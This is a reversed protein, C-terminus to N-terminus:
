ILCVSGVLNSFKYQRKILFDACSILALNRFGKDQLSEHYTFMIEDQGNQKWKIGAKINTDANLLNLAIHRLTAFNDGAQERRIRYSDENMGVDLRWHLQSEISWHTRSAELLQKSTLKASSIYYRVSIDTAPEGKKECVAAVIGMTKM